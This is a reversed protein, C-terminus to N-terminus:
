RRFRKPRPLKSLPKELAEIFLLVGLFILVLALFDMM